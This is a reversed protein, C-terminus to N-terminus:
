DYKEKALVILRQSSLGPPVCTMLTLYKNASDPPSIPSLDNPDVAYVKVIQYDYVLGEAEAFIEDGVSLEPLTSFITLYNQPDFFQPLVSHGTIFVNGVEGPLASGPLQALNKKFDGSDVEVKANEIGLKPISVKFESYPYERKDKAVFYSFNDNEKQVYIDGTEDGAVQGTNVMKNQFKEKVLFSVTPTFFYFLIALGAFVLFLPWIPRQYFKAKKSWSIESTSKVYRYQYQKTM